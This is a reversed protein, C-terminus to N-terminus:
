FAIDFKSQVYFGFVAHYFLIFSCTVKIMLLTQNFTTRGFHSPVRITCSNAYQTMNPSCLRTCTFNLICHHTQSANKFQQRLSHYLTAEPQLVCQWSCYAYLMMNYYLWALAHLTAQMQEECLLLGCITLVEISTIRAAEYSTRVHTQKNNVPM